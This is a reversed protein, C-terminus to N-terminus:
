NGSCPDFRSGRCPSGLTEAVPGSPFDRFWKFCFVFVLSLALHALKHTLTILLTIDNDKPGAWTLGKEERPEGRWGRWLSGDNRKSRRSDLPELVSPKPQQLRWSSHPIRPLDGGLSPGGKDKSERPQCLFAPSCWLPSSLPHPRIPVSLPSWIRVAM